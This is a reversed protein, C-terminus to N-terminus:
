YRKLIRSDAIARVAQTIKPAPLTLAFRVHGEGSPGFSSGPTCLVGAKELLEMCFDMSSLGSVPIEAWVFMSGQSDPVEWGISRLGGCLADRRERYSERQRSLAEASDANLAAAAAKQIPTFMGFGLQMRLKKFAAVAGTNGICYSVRAGTMNFSKSLSFFEIGVDMAGPYSLFSRGPQGDFIIDSYANDHIILIDYKKAFAIIELYLDETGASGLPNSPLSVIMFKAQRAIEQPIGSINPLFGTEENMPYFYPIAGAMNACNLFVPYSPAPLLITDGEDCFALGILGIGEQTGFCSTIQEPVITVGYRKKYYGCVADLTEPLDRLSYKWDEPNSASDILARRIREDVPFDPTGVSLDYIEKGQEELEIKKNNLALFIEDDLRDMRRSLQM